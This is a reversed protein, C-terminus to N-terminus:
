DVKMKADSKALEKMIMFSSKNKCLLQTINMFSGYIRFETLNEDQFTEINTSFCFTLNIKSTM